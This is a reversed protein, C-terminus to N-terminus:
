PPYGEQVIVPTVRVSAIDPQRRDTFYVGNFFREEGARILGSEGQGPYAVVIPGITVSSTHVVTVGDEALGELKLTFAIDYNCTNRVNGSVRYQVVNDYATISRLVTEYKAQTVLKSPNQCQRAAAAVAEGTAAAVAQRQEDEAQRATATAQAEAQRTTATGREQAVVTATAGAREDARRAQEAIYLSYGAFAVAGVTLLAALMGLVIGFTILFSRVLMRM